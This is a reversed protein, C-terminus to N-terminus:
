GAVPRERTVCGVAEVPVGRDEDAGVFGLAQEEGRLPHPTGLIPAIRPRRDGSVEGSVLLAHHRGVHPALPAVVGGPVEVRHGLVVRDGRDRLRRALRAQDVDPVSSPRMWTVSSPPPLQRFISTPRRGPTGLRAKTLSMLASRNSAFVTYTASSLWLFPSKVDTDERSGCGRALGPSGDDSVQGVSVQDPPDHLVVNALIQQEHAGLEAHEEGDVATALPDLQGPARGRNRKPVEGDVAALSAIQHPGGKTAPKPDEVVVGRQALHVFLRQLLPGSARREGLPATTRRRPLVHARRRSFFAVWPCRSSRRRCGAREARRERVVELSSRLVRSGVRRRSFSASSMSFPLSVGKPPSPHLHVGLLAFRTRGISKSRARRWLALDDTAEVTRRRRPDM